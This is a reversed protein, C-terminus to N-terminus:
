LALANEIHQLVKMMGLHRLMAIWEAYPLQILSIRVQLIRHLEMYRNLSSIHDGINASPACGLGGVIRCLDPFSIM